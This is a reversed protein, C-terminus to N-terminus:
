GGHDAVVNKGVAASEEDDLVPAIKMDMYPNWQGLYRNLAALETAEFIAVGGRAATDHRRVMFKMSDERICISCSRAAASVAHAAKAALALHLAARRRFRMDDVAAASSTEAGM